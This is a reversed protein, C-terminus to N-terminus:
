IGRCVLSGGTDKWGLFMGEASERGKRGKRACLVCVKECINKICPM